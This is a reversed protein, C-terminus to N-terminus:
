FLGLTAFNLLIWLDKDGLRVPIIPNYLVASGM